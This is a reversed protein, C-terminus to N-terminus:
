GAIPNTRMWPGNLACRGASEALPFGEPMTFGYFPVMAVDALGSTIPKKKSTPKFSKLPM